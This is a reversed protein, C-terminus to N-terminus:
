SFGACEDATGVDDCRGCRFHDGVSRNTNDALHDVVYTGPDFKRSSVGAIRHGASGVVDHCWSEHISVTMKRLSQDRSDSLLVGQPFPNLVDNQRDVRHQVM